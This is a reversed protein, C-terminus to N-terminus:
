QTCLFSFTDITLYKEIMDYLFPSQITNLCDISEKLSHPTDGHIIHNLLFHIRTETDQNGILFIGSLHEKAFLIEEESPPETHLTNIQHILAHKLTDPKERHASSQITFFSIDSFFHRQSGVSYCLGKTNRLDQKLRSSMTEGFLTSIILLGYFESISVPTPFATGAIIHTNRFQCKLERDIKIYEPATRSNRKQKSQQYKGLVSELGQFLAQLDVDGCATIVCNDPSWVKEHYQYAKELSVQQISEFTGTIPQALSHGSLISHFFQNETFQLESNSESGIEHSIIQKERELEAHNFVPSFCMESLITIGTLLHKSPITIFVGTFEKQTLGNIVGGLGEIAKAINNYPIRKSNTRFLLHELLHTLGREEPAEDRPGTLFWFGISVTEIRDRKEFIARINNSLTHRFILARTDTEETATDEM